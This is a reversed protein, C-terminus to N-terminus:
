LYWAPPDALKIEVGIWAQAGGCSTFYGVVTGKGVGNVAVTVTDGIAPIPCGGSWSCTATIEPQVTLGYTNKM